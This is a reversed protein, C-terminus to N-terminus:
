NQRRRIMKPDASIAAIRGREGAAIKLREGVKGAAEKV